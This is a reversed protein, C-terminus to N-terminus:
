TRQEPTTINTKLDGWKSSVPLEGVAPPKGGSSSAAIPGPRRIDRIALWAWLNVVISAVASTGWMIGMVAIMQPTITGRGTQTSGLLFFSCIGAVSFAISPTLIAMLKVVRVRSADPNYSANIGALLENLDDVSSIKIDTEKILSKIDDLNDIQLSM